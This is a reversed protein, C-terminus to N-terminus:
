SAQPSSQPRCTSSKSNLDAVRVGGAEEGHADVMGQRLRHPEERHRPARRLLNALLSEPSRGELVYGLKWGLNWGDQMSVNMGQGAKACHTHCADGMIFVRPGQRRALDGRRRLPRHPPAGGRLRQALARRARRAHVPQPDRECARRDRRAPHRAGEQRRGAPVEGLDVYIRCLHNARARSTCSAGQRRTFSASRAFTPSTPSPSYMWSAGPTCLPPDRSRDVSQAACGRARGTAGIVYKARVTRTGGETRLCEEANIGAGRKGTVERLTVTVPYEGSGVELGEFEYGYDIDGRAPARRAYEAFYDIVRAQNVILHPFESIGAPDDDTVSSRVIHEPNAPDPTWFNM